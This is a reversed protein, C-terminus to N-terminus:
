VEGSPSVEERSISEQGYRGCPDCYFFLGPKPYAITDRDLKWGQHKEGCPVCPETPTHSQLHTTTDDPFVPKDACVPCVDPMARVLSKGHGEAGEIGKKRRARAMPEGRINAIRADTM